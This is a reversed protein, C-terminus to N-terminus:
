GCRILMSAVTGAVGRVLVDSGEIWLRGPEVAGGSLLHYSRRLRTPKGPHVLLCAADEGRDVIIHLWLM